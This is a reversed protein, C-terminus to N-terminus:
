HQGSQVLCAHHHEALTRSPVLRIQCCKSFFGATQRVGGAALMSWRVSANIIFNNCWSIGAMTLVLCCAKEGAGPFNLLRIASFAKLMLGCLIWPLHAAVRQGAASPSFATMAHETAMGLPKRSSRALCPAVTPVQSTPKEYLHRTVNASRQLAVTIPLPRGTGQKAQLLEQQLCRAIYPLFHADTRAYEM